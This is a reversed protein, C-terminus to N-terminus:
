RQGNAFPIKGHAEEFEQILRKEVERPHDDLTPKWCVLLDGSQKLQWVLKGGSHGIPIGRGFRMYEWLRVRLTRSETPGAKGIYLAIAGEVWRDMLVNISVTPNKGKFHGGTSQELFEPTAASPRLVVYVGPVTPVEACETSMLTSIAAFGGFGAERLAYVSDFKPKM